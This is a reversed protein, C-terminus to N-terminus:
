RKRYFLYTSKKSYNIFSVGPILKIFDEKSYYNFQHVIRYDRFVIEHEIVNGKLRAREVGQAGAWNTVERQSWNASPEKLFTNSILVGNPKLNSVLTQIQSNDLYNISGRCVILDYSDKLNDSWAVRKDIWIPKEEIFPDLFDTKIVVGNDIAHPYAAYISETGHIGGGVDLVKIEKNKNIVMEHITKEIVDDFESRQWYRKPFKTRYFNWDNQITKNM